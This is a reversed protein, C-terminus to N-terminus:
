EDYTLASRRATWWDDAAQTYTTSTEMLGAYVHVTHSISPAINSYAHYELPPVLLGVTREPLTTEGTFAFRTGREADTEIARYNREQMTGDVVIEACWLGGHDHLPTGQGPAWTMAVMVFRDHPDRWLLRRTYHAALPAAFYNSNRFAGASSLETLVGALATVRDQKVAREISEIVDSGPVM